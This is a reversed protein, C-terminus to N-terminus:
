CPPCCRLYGVRIKINTCAITAHFNKPRVTKEGSRRITPRDKPKSNDTNTGVLSDYFNMSIETDRM